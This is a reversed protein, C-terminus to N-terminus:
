SRMQGATTTMEDATKFVQAASSYARQTMIMRSFEHAIDVNSGEVTQSMVATSEWDVGLEDLSYDGAAATAAYVNGSREELNNPSVFRAVPLKYFAVDTGNSFSGVLEGERSFYTGVLSGATRGDTSFNDLATSGGMQTLGTLDLNIGSTSGDAWTLNATTTAPSLIQGVADFALTFPTSAVGGAPTLSVSWENAAGTPTFSFEVASHNLANDYMSVTLKQPVTASADVNARLSLQTSPAGPVMTASDIMVPVLNGTSAPTGPAGNVAWGQLYNGQSDVLYASSSDQSVPQLSFSGNRTFLTEGSGNLQDNVVFFGQGTLAIDNWRQTQQLVGERDVLVRDANKVSFIDHGATRESLLTAFQSDIRKYGTTSVNAVNQSIHGLALSQANMAQVSNTFAGWFSM